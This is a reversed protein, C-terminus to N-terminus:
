RDPAAAADLLRRAATGAEKAVAPEDRAASLAFAGEVLLAVGAVVTSDEVGEAACLEAVLRRRGDTHARTTAHIPHGRNAVELSANLFACGRYAEGAFLRALAAFLADVPRSGRAIRREVAARLVALAPEDLAALAAGVLADKSGFQRYLTRKTVGARAAIADVGTAEVGGAYTLEAAAALLRDRPSPVSM